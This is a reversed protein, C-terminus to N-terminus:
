KARKRKSKPEVSEMNVHKYAAFRSLDDFDYVHLGHHETFILLFRSWNLAFANRFFLATGDRHNLHVAGQFRPDRAKLKKSISKALAQAAKLKPALNM